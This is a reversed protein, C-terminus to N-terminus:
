IPETEPLNGACISTKKVAPGFSNQFNSINQFDSVIVLGLILIAAARGVLGKSGWLTSTLMAIFPIMAWGWFVLYRPEQYPASFALLTSFWIGGLIFVPAILFFLANRKLFINVIVGLLGITTIMPFNNMLVKAPIFIRQTFPIQGIYDAQALKATQTMHFFDGFLLYNNILWALPMAICILIAVLYLLSNKWDKRKLSFFLFPPLLICVFLALMWGIYHTSTAFLTAISILIALTGKKSDDSTFFLFILYSALLLFFVLIPESLATYSIFVDGAFVAILFCALLGVYKNGVRSSFKYIIILSGILFLNNIGVPILIESTNILPKLLFYIAGVLWFQFPLWYGDAPFFLPASVLLLISGNPFIHGM